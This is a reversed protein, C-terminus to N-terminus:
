LGPDFIRLVHAFVVSPVWKNDPVDIAVGWMVPMAASYRSLFGFIVGFSTNFAIILSAVFLITVVLRSKIWALVVVSAVVTVNSAEVAFIIVISCAWVVETITGVNDGIERGVGM